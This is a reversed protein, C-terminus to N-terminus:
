HTMSRSTQESHLWREQWAYILSGHFISECTGFVFNSVKLYLFGFIISSLVLPYSFLARLWLELETYKASNVSTHVSSM